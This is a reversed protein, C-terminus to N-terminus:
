TLSSVPTEIDHDFIVPSLDAKNAMAVMGLFHGM